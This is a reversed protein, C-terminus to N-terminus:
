AGELRCSESVEEILGPRPPLAGDDARRRQLSEFPLFWCVESMPPSLHAFTPRNVETEVDYRWDEPAALYLRVRPSPRARLLDYM